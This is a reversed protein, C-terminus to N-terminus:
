VAGTRLPPKTDEGKTPATYQADAAVLLDFPENFEVGTVEDAEVYIRSFVAQNLMRRQEDTAGAYLDGPRELISLAADIYELVATLKKETNELRATMAARSKTIGNMRRQM